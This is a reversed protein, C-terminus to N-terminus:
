CKGFVYALIAKAAHLRNEAQLFVVSNKSEMASDTIEEGRHAPLCHMILCDKKALKLLKDNIQFNKFIKKKKAKEKEQGMSVWVDTYLVDSMKAAAAISATIIIQAGSAACYSKTKDLMKKEPQYGKPAAIYLIGGLISFADMLSNCVNNADGIYAVKLKEISGKLEKMTILDGLTQSPHLLDSLANIVPVTSFKAFELVKEHSFTRLVAADMFHSSTRAVDAIKERLGLQVEDPSYYIAQGGLQLAGIYFAAKTRLSPKEFFLGVCKGSLVQGYKSPNAKIDLALDILKYIEGKSFDRLSLFHRAM